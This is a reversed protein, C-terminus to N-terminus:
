DEGEAKELNPNRTRNHDHCRDCDPPRVDGHAAVDAVTPKKQTRTLRQQGAIRLAKLTLLHTVCSPIEDAHRVMLVLFLGEDALRELATQLRMRMAPDLGAFPDDLVLLKPSKLLARSLLVRRMEGNSLQAMRREFLPQLSFIERVNRLLRAFTRRAAAENDRVEFPNIENVGEYSLFARVSLADDSDMSHWRAQLWGDAAQDQQQAFTVLAVRDEIGDGFVLRVGRLPVEGALLAALYSKGSGNPGMVAWQEGRRFRWTGGAFAREPTGTLEFVFDNTQKM